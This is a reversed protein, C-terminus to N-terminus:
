SIQVEKLTWATLLYPEVILESVRVLYTGRGHEQKRRTGRKPGRVSTFEESM